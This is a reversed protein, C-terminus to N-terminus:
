ARVVDEVESGKCDYVVAYHRDCGWCRVESVFFGTEAECEPCRVALTGCADCSGAQITEGDPQPWDRWAVDGTYCNDNPCDGFGNFENLSPSWEPPEPASEAMQKVVIGPQSAAGARSAAGASVGNLTYLVGRDVGLDILKGAFEDVKGIGLRKGYRKCEIAIRMEIGGIAGTVLVDVQRPRGSVTGTVSANHEVGAAPDMKAVLDAVSIEFARWQPETLPDGAGDDDTSPGQESSADPQSM